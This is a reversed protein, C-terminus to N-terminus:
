RRQHFVRGACNGALSLVGYAAAYVWASENYYILVTPAFLVTAIVPLAPEFGHKAGYILSCTFTVLPIVCLMLLMAAGTNKALLPLAYFNAALAAAYPVLAVLRKKM